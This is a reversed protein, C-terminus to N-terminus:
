VSTGVSLSIVLMFGYYGTVITYRPIIVATAPCRLEGLDCNAELYM